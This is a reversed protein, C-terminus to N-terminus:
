TLGNRAMFRAWENAREAETLAQPNPAGTFSGDRDQLILYDPCKKFMTLGHKRLLAMYEEAQMTITGRLFPGGLM